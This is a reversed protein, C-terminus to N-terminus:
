LDYPGLRQRSAPSLLVELDSKYLAVNAYASYALIGKRQNIHHPSHTPSHTVHLPTDICLRISIINM